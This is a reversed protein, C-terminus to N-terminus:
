DSPGDSAWKVLYEAVVRGALRHGAYNLHSWRLSEGTASQRREFEGTLPIFAFGSSDALAALDRDFFDMRFTDDRARLSAEVDREYVMPVPALAFRADARACRRAMRVMLAKCLDYQASFVSDPSSTCMGLEPTLGTSEASRRGAPSRLQRWANYRETMLSVLASHQKLPNIWERVRFDRRRVFGQDLELGGDPARRYFPRCPDRTTLPGVDAVDNQPTFWVMVLDPHCPLVDRELVLLEEAQSMGSRGFNMLEVRHGRVRPDAALRREAVSLFTSDQEVQFAEVFSDGLVVVRYVGSPKERQREHDRWGMSNIRGTIAHDNEGFFWYERGPTFRWGIARDPETWAVRANFAHTARLAVEVLAFTIALAAVALGLKRIM